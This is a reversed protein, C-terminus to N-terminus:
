FADGSGFGGVLEQGCQAAMAVGLFDVAFQAASGVGSGVFGAPFIARGQTRGRAAWPPRIDPARAGRQFDTGVPAHGDAVFTQTSTDGGPCPDDVTEMWVTVN